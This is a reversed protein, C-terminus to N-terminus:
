CNANSGTFRPTQACRPAGGSHACVDLSAQILGFLHLSITMATKPTSSEAHGFVRQTAHAMFRKLICAALAAWILTREAM